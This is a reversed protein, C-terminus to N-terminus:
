SSSTVEKWGSWLAQYTKHCLKISGFASKSIPATLPFIPRIQEKADVFDCLDVSPSYRNLLFSRGRVVLDSEPESTTLDNQITVIM